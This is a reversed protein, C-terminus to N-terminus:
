TLNRWASVNIVACVQLCFYGCSLPTFHRRKRLHRSDSAIFNREMVKLDNYSSYQIRVWRFNSFHEIQLSLGTQRKQKGGKGSEKKDFLQRRGRKELATRSRLLDGDREKKNSACKEQPRLRNSKGKAVKESFSPIRELMLVANKSSSLSRTQDSWSACYPADYILRAQVHLLVARPTM